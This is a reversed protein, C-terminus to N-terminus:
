GTKSDIINNDAIEIDVAAYNIGQLEKIWFLTGGAVAIPMVFINVVPIMSSLMITGGLGLTSYSQQKVQQRLTKFPLKHNDAPYDVYQLTMVWAAWMLALVPVLLNVLPILALFFLGISVLLGRSVFYWLKVMERKFTRAVMQGISEAPITTQTLRTEIKEALIGYFPAAIINTILNFSYGYIMLIIFVALGSIVTAIFTAIVALWSWFSLLGTFWDTLSSFSQFLLTTLIVFVVINALLPILVFRKLGPQLLLGAGRVFYSFGSPITNIVQMNM